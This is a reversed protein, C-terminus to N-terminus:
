QLYFQLVRNKLYGLKTKEGEDFADNHYVWRQEDVSQKLAIKFCGVNSL